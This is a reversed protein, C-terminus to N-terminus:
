GGNALRPLVLIGVAVVMMVAGLIRRWILPGSEPRYTELSRQEEFFKEEEGSRLRQLREAHKRKGLPSLLQPWVVLSLGVILIFIATGM